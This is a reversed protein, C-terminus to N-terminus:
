ESFDERLGASTGSSEAAQTAPFVSLLLIVTLLLATIRKISRM